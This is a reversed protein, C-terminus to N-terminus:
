NWRNWFHDLDIEFENRSDDVKITKKVFNISSCLRTKDFVVVNHTKDFSDYYSNLYQEVASQWVM